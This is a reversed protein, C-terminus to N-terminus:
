DSIKTTIRRLSRREIGEPEVFLALFEDSNRARNTFDIARRAISELYEIVVGQNEGLRLPPFELISAVANFRCFKPRDNKQKLSSKNTLSNLSNLSNLSHLSQKELRTLSKGLNELNRLNM